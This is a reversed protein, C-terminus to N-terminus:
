EFIQPVNLHDRSKTLGSLLASLFFFFILFFNSISGNGSGVSHWCCGLLLIQPFSGFFFFSIRPIELCWCCSLRHSPLRFCNSNRQTSPPFNSYDIEEMNQDLFARFWQKRKKLFFLFTPRMKPLGAMLLLAALEKISTSGLQSDTARLYIFCIFSTAGLFTWIPQQTIWNVNLANNFSFVLAGLNSGFTFVVSRATLVWRPGLYM